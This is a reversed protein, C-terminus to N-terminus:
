SFCFFNSNYNQNQNECVIQNANKRKKNILIFFNKSSSSFVSEIFFLSMFLSYIRSFIQLIIRFCENM